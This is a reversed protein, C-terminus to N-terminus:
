KILKKVQFDLKTLLIVMVRQKNKRRLLMLFIAIDANAHGIMALVSIAILTKLPKSNIM